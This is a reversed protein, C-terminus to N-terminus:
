YPSQIQLVFVCSFCSFCFFLFLQFSVRASVATDVDENSDSNKFDIAELGMLEQEQELMSLEQLSEMQSINPKSLRSSSQNAEFSTLKMNHSVTKQLECQIGKEALTM